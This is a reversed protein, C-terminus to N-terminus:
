EHEPAEQEPIAVSAKVVQVCTFGHMGIAALQGLFTAETSLIMRAVAPNSMLLAHAATNATRGGESRAQDGLPCPVGTRMQIMGGALEHLMIFQEYLQDVSLFQPIAAVEGVIQADEVDPSKLLYEPTDDPGADLVLQELQESFDFPM